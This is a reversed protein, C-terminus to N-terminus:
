AEIIDSDESGALAGICGQVKIRGSRTGTDSSCSLELRMAKGVCSAGFYEDELTKM